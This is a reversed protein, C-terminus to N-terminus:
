TANTRKGPSVPRKELQPDRERGGEGQGTSLKKIGEEGCFFHSREGGQQMMLAPMRAKGKGAANLTGGQLQRSREKELNTPNEKEKESYL